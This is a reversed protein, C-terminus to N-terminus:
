ILAIRLAAATAAPLALMAAILLAAQLSLHGDFPLGAEYASVAGSGFILTPVALPLVILLNLLAGNRLGLTLAAALNGLLSLTPTGLLLSLMLLGLSAGHMGYMLGLLPTLLLLPLTQSLWHALAKVAALRWASHPPLLLQDLCGDQADSAYLSHLSLLSALLALVWLVGPAMRRLQDPEPGLGLPFLSAAMLLFAVPLGADVPKRAALRLERQLLLWTM